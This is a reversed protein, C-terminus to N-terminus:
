KRTNACRHRKRKQFAPQVCLSARRTLLSPCVPYSKTGLVPVAAEQKPTSEEEKKFRKGQPSCPALQSCGLCSAWTASLQHRWTVALSAPQWSGPIHAQPMCGGATGVRPFSRTREIVSLRWDVCVVWYKSSGVSFNMM